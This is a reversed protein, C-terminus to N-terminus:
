QGCLGSLLHGQAQLAPAEFFGKLSTVAVPEGKPHGYRELEMGRLQGFTGWYIYVRGDDDVFPTPDINQMMNRVPAAQSIIPGASPCGGM